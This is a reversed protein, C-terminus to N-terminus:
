AFAEKAHVLAMAAVINVLLQELSSVAADHSTAAAGADGVTRMWVAMGRRMLLAQGRMDHQAADRQMVTRRLSEYRQVLAQGDIV